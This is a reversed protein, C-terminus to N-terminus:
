CAPQWSLLECSVLQHKALRHPAEPTTDARSCRSIDSWFHARAAESLVQDVVAVRVAGPLAVFYSSSCLADMMLQM